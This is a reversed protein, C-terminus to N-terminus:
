VLRAKLTGLNQAQPLRRERKHGMSAFAAIKGNMSM